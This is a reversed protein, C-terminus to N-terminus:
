VNPLENLNMLKYRRIQFFFLCVDFDNLVTVIKPDVRKQKM